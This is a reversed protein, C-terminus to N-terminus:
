PAGKETFLEGFLEQAFLEGTETLWVSKNKSVPDSIYGREYLRDMAEFSFKKWSRYHLDTKRNKFAGHWLLALVAKDIQDWDIKENDNM